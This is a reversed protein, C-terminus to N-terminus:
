EKYDIIKIANLLTIPIKKSVQEVIKKLFANCSWLITQVLSQDKKLKPKILKECFNKSIFTVYSGTVLQLRFFIRNLKIKDNTKRPSKECINRFKGKFFRCRRYKKNKKQVQIPIPFSRIKKVTQVNKGLASHKNKNRKYEKGFYKCKIVFNM